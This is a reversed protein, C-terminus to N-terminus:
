VEVLQLARGAVPEPVLQVVDGEKHSTTLGLADLAALCDHTSVGAPLNLEGTSAAASVFETVEAVTLPKEPRSYGVLIEFVARLVSGPPLGAGRAFEEASAGEATSRRVEELATTWDGVPSQVILRNMLAPWGGTVDLTTSALEPVDHRNEERRWMALTAEDWRGLPIERATLDDTRQRVWWLVQGPGVVLVVALPEERQTLSAQAMALSAQCQAEDADLLEAVIVTPQKRTAALREGLQAPTAVSVHVDHRGQAASQLCRAVTSVESAQSGVVVKIRRDVLLLDSLQRETLPSRTTDDRRRRSKDRDFYQPLPTKCAEDLAQLAQAENGILRLVNPSRLGYSNGRGTAALVGLGVLEDLLGIFEDRSMSGFADPHWRGSETHLDDATLQEYPGNEYAQVAVLYAIVEYRPDLSITWEFRDRVRRVLEQDSLLEDVDNEGIRYPPRGGGANRRLLHDVLGDCVLQIISPAYNTFNLLRYVLDSKSFEYGLASLPETVLRVASASRLPGIPTQPGLHAFPQNTSRQFRLVQHLGAFVVKVRRESHDMLGKLLRSGRFHDKADSDLFADCEDLLILLSRHPEESIWRDVAAVLPNQDVAFNREPLPVGASRLEHALHNWIEGTPSYTGVGHALLDLYVARRQPHGAVFEAQAARLLASKGLQRGGYIFSTGDPDQVDRKEIERGYFMEVPVNGTVNPVYPNVATFPLMLRLPVDWGGGHLATFLVIADDVAIVDREPKARLARALEERQAARLVGPYLVVVAGSSAPSHSVANLIASTSCPEWLQLFRYSGRRRSGFAPVLAKGKVVAGSVDIWGRDSATKPDQPRSVHTRDIELGLLRLLATIDGQYSNSPRRLARWGAVGARALRHEEQSLSSFDYAGAAEGQDLAKLLEGTWPEPRLRDVFDPFFTRFLDNDGHPTPPEDGQEALALFEDATALEGAAIAAVIQDRARRVSPVEMRAELRAHLADGARRVEADLDLRFAQLREHVSRLDEADPAIVLSELQLALGTDAPGGLLAPRIVEYRKALQARYEQLAVLGAALSETRSTAMQAAKDPAEKEIEALILRTAGHEQAAARADFAEEWSSSLAPLLDAVNPLDRPRWGDLRVAPAKLLERNLVHDFSPEAGVAVEGALLGCTQTFMAAATGAAAQSLPDGDGGTRALEGAVGAALRTFVGHLDALGAKATAAQSGTRTQMAQVSRSWRGVLDLVEHCHHLLKARAGANIRDRAQPGSLERDLDDVLVNLQREDALPRLADSVAAAEGRRDAAVVSLHAALVGDGTMLRRWVASARQYKLKHSPGDELLRCAETVLADHDRELESLDRAGPLLDPTLFVGRRVAQLAYAILEHTVSSPDLMALQRSMADPAGSQWPALVQARLTASLLLARFPRSQVLEELDLAAVTDRFAAACDGPPTGIADALAAARLTDVQALSLKSAGAFWYAMGFRRATILDALVASSGQAEIEPSEAPAAPAAKEALTPAGEVEPTSEIRARRLEEVSRRRAEPKEAKAAGPPQAKPLGREELVPQPEPAPRPEAADVTSQEPVPLVEVPEEVAHPASAEDDAPAPEPRRELDPPAVKGAALAMGVAVWEAGLEAQRELAAAARQDPETQAIAVVAEFPSVEADNPPVERERLRQAEQRFRLLTQAAPDPCDPAAVLSEALRLVSRRAEVTEAARRVAAIRERLEGVAAVTDPLTPALGCAEAEAVAEQAARQLLDGFAHVTDLDKADAAQGASLQALIRDAAEVATDRQEDLARQAQVTVKVDLAPASEDLLRRASDAAPLDTASVIALAIRTAPVGIAASVRDTAARLQRYTPERYAEGLAEQYHRLVASHLLTVFDNRKSPSWSRLRQCALTGIRNKRPNHPLGLARCKRGDEDTFRYGAFALDIEAATLAALQENIIDGAQM